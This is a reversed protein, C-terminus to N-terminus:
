TGVDSLDWDKRQSNLVLEMGSGPDECLPCSEGGFRTRVSISKLNHYRCCKTCIWKSASM